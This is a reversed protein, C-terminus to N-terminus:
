KPPDDVAAQDLEAILPVIRELLAPSGSVILRNTRADVALRYDEGRHLASLLAAIADAQANKLAIIKLVAAEARPSAQADASVLIWTQTTGQESM